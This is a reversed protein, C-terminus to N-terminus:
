NGEGASMLEIFPEAPPAELFPEIGECRIWAHAELSGDAARRVGLIVEADHGSRRLLATVIVARRLCSYRWLWPGRALVQDVARALEVPTPSPTARRPTARVWRLTRSGSFLTLALPLIASAAIIEAKDRLTM